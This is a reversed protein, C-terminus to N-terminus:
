ISASPTYSCFLRKKPAQSIRFLHIVQGPAKTRTSAAMKRDLYRAEKKMTSALQMIFQTKKLFRDNLIAIANMILLMSEFICFISFAM